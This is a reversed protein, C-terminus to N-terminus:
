WPHAIFQKNNVIIALTLSTERGWNSMEYTLLELTRMEDNKYCHDLLQVSLERFKRFYKYLYM